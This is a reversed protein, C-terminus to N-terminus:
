DAWPRPTHGTQLRLLALTRECTICLEEVRLSSLLFDQNIKQITRTTSSIANLPCVGVCAGCHLCATNTALRRGQEALANVPCFDLCISCQTPTAAYRLCQTTLSMINGTGFDSLGPNCRKKLEPTLLENEM